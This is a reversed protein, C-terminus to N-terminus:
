LFREYLDLFRLVADLHEAKEFVCDFIKDREIKGVGSDILHGLDLSMGKSNHIFLDATLVYGAGGTEWFSDDYLLLVKQDHRGAYEKIANILRTKTMDFGVIEVRRYSERSLNELWALILMAYVDKSRVGQQLWYLCSQCDEVDKEIDVARRHDSECCYYHRALRRQAVKDGGHGAKVLLQLGKAEDQRVGEGQLYCLGLAREGAPYENAASRRYWKLAKKISRSVIIENEYSQGIVFQAYGNEQEAAELFLKFAKYKDEAVGKGFFYMDALNVKAEVDGKKMAMTYYEVAKADDKIVGLGFEYMRGVECQAPAYGSTASKLFCAFAKKYNQKVGRGYYHFNGIIYQAAPNGLSAGESYRHLARKNDGRTEELIGAVVFADPFRLKLPDKLCEFAKDLDVDCGSGNIYCAALNVQGPPFGQDASKEYWQFAEADPGKENLLSGLLYQALPHGAQAVPLLRARYDESDKGKSQLALLLEGTEQPFHDKLAQAFRLDAEPDLSSVSKFTQQVVPDEMFTILQLQPEPQPAPEPAAEIAVQHLRQPEPQRLRQPEPQRVDNQHFLNCALSSCTLLEIALDRLPVKAQPDIGSKNLFSLLVKKLATTKNVSLKEQIATLVEASSAYNSCICHVTHFAPASVNDLIFKSPVLAGSPSKLEALPQFNEFGVYEIEDVLGNVFERLDIKNKWPLQAEKIAKQLYKLEQITWCDNKLQYFDKIVRLLRFYPPYKEDYDYTDLTLIWSHIAQSFEIKEVREEIRLFRQYIRDAMRMVENRTEEEQVALTLLNNKVTIISHALLLNHENLLHIYRWSHKQMSILDGPTPRLADSSNRSFAHQCRKFFGQPVYDELRDSTCSLLRTADLALRETEATRGRSWALVPELHTDIVRSESPSLDFM